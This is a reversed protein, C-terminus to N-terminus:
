AWRARRGAVFPLFGLALVANSGLMLLPIQWSWGISVGLALSNNLAHLSIAPLLSRTKAYLLCLVFGFAALPVLMSVLVKLSRM